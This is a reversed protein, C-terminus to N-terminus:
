QDVADRALGDSQVDRDSLKHVKRAVDEGNFPQPAEVGPGCIAARLNPIHVTNKPRTSPNSIKM